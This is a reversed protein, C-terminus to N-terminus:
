EPSLRFGPRKSKVMFRFQIGANAPMVVKWDVWGRGSPKFDDIPENEQGASL